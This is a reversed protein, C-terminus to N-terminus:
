ADYAAVAASTRGLRTLLDARIAPLLRYGPLDLEEITALAL